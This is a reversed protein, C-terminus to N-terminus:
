RLRWDMGFFGHARYACPVPEAFNPSGDDRRAGGCSWQGRANEVGEDFVVWDPLLDPLFAARWTGLPTTGAIVLVAHGEVDPHPAVFVTGVEPGRHRTEGVVIADREFRLPLERRWRAVLDNSGPGGVLVLTANEIQEPTVDVDDVIPYATDWGVPHAWQEAVRRNMWTQRPDLTGVVFVLRDHYVDRIPGSVGPRKGRESTGVRWGENQRVLSLPAPGELDVGDIRVHLTGAVLESPPALVLAAVNSTTVDIREEGVHADVDAFIDPASRVVDRVWFAHDTRERGTRFRVHHPTGPLRHRGLWTFIAGGAYTETWVNHGLAPERHEFPYRLERLRTALARTWELPRDRTGRVLLTPLHSATEAWDVDSREAVLFREAASLGEHHTDQRVRQDHYGALAASAAFLDPNRYPLYIAGTGGMSGGTVYLRAPDVPHRARVAALAEEVDIEGAFRYHTQGRAEPAIVIMPGHTPVPGVGGWAGSPPTGNRGHADLSEGGRWNRELGFTNRFYDGNNGKFGHLTILVPWGTRPPRGPPVFLEFPQPTGDLRSPHALRQYGASPAFPDRGAALARAVDRAENALWSRWAGDPDGVEIVRLGERLRWGASARAVASTENSRALARALESLASLLPRDLSVGGGASLETDNASVTVGLGGRTGLPVDRLLTGRFAGREVSLSAREDGIRTEVAVAPGGAFLGVELRAVPLADDEAVDRPGAVLAVVDVNALLRRERVSAAGTALGRARDEDLPGLDLSVDGSGPVFGDDLIRVRLSWDDDDDLRKARLVVVHEGPSLALGVHREDVRDVWRTWHAHPAGDVFVELEGRLGVFLHLTRAVDTRAVFALDLARANRPGLRRLDLRESPSAVVECACTRPDLPAEASPAVRFTGLWGDPGTALPTARAPLAYAFLAALVLFRM